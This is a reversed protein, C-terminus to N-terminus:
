SVVLQPRFFHPYFVTTPLGNGAVIKMLYQTEDGQYIPATGGTYTHSFESVAYKLEFEEEKSAGKDNKVSIKLEHTGSVNGVYEFINEKEDFIYEKNAVLVEGNLKLVGNLNTVFKFKTQISSFDYSPVINFKLQNTEGVSKEIFNDDREITFGFQGGNNNGWDGDERCSIISLTTIALLLYFLKKM